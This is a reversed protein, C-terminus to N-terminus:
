APRDPVTIDGVLYTVAQGTVLVRAATLHCDLRGGRPSAQCACLDDKGLKQAWYPTLTAHISGTVPDEPIGIGPAFYRSTFDVGSAGGQGTVVLGGAGLSAIAVLDPVFGCVAAASGLDAYINEAYEFVAVPRTAFMPRLAAPLDDRLVPDLRPFDLQYGRAKRAAHLTGARSHFTVRAGPDRTGLLVHAAALTAHGCFDVEQLPAFWRLDFSGDPRPVVFATEPLNNEQAIAQMLGDALWGDLVLVAAPNGAFVRDTFADVQHIRM